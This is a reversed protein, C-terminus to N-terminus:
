SVNEKLYAIIEDDTHDDSIIGDECYYFIAKDIRLSTANNEDYADKIANWLSEESITYQIPLGFCDHEPEEAFVLHANFTFTPYEKGNYIITSRTM